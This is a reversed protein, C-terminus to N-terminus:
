EPAGTRGLASDLKRAIDTVSDLDGDPPLLASIVAGGAGLAALEPAHALDVGGIAVLPVQAAGALAVARALGELGVVPDPNLKSRTAFVPGFAVYCPKASLAMDLQAFDHTSVGVSLSSWLQRVEHATLDEQGVHVGDCGALIALDPRDNAFLEVGHKDCLRRLARLLELTGQASAHKARLQIRRPRAAIVREAFGIVPLKMAALSDADIIAYLGQMTDSIAM